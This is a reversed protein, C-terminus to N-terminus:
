LFLIAIVWEVVMGQTPAWVSLTGTIIVLNMLNEGSVLVARTTWLSGHYCEKIRPM